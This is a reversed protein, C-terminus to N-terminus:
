LSHWFSRHKRVDNLTAEHSTSKLAAGDISVHRVRFNTGGLDLAFYDGREKGTPLNEVFAPIM